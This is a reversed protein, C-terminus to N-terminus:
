LQKKAQPTALMAAEDKRHEDCAYVVVDDGRFWSTKIDVRKAGVAGCVCCKHLNPKRTLHKM